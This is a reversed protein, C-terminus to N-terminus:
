RIVALQGKQSAFFAALDELDKRSLKEVQGAMIPNKRTGAKYERMAKFLYDAHQGALRPFDPGTPTNGDAGHCAACAASKAKGAAADGAAFAPAALLACVLLPFINKIASNKM